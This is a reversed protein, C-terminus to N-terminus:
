GDVGALSAVAGSGLYLYRARFAIDLQAFAKAPRLTLGAACGFAFAIGM